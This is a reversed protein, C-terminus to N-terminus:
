EAGDREDARGGPAADRLSRAAQALSELLPRLEPLGRRDADALAANLWDELTM